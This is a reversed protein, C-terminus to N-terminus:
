ESRLVEAPRVRAIFWAPIASGFAAILLIIGSAAIFVQPSLSSTVQTLNAGVQNLGGRIFGGPGGAETRTSTSSRSSSVLSQTMPGSVLVGLVLGVVGGIITLTLAESM